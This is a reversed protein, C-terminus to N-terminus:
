VFIYTIESLNTFYYYYTYTFKPYNRIILIEVIDINEM